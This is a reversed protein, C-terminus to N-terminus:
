DHADMNLNNAYKPYNIVKAVEVITSPVMM